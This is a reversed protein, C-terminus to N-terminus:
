KCEFFLETDGPKGTSSAENYYILGGFLRSPNDGFTRASGEFLLPYRSSVIYRRPSRDGLLFGLCSFPRSLNVTLGISLTWRMSVQLAM